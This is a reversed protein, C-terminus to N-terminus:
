GVQHVSIKLPWDKLEEFGRLSEGGGSVWSCQSNNALIQQQQKEM